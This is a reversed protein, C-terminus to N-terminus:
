GRSNQFIVFGGKKKKREAEREGFCPHQGKGGTQRAEATEPWRSDRAVEVRRWSGRGGDIEMGAPRDREQWAAACAM